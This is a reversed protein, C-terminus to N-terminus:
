SIWWRWLVSRTDNPWLWGCRFLNGNISLQSESHSTTWIPVNGYILWSISESWSKIWGLRVHHYPPQILHRWMNQCKPDKRKADHIFTKPSPCWQSKDWQQQVVHMHLKWSAITLHWLFHKIFTISRRSLVIVSIILGILIFTFLISPHRVWAIFACRYVYYSSHGNSLIWHSTIIRRQVQGDTDCTM